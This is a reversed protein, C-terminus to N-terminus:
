STFAKSYVIDAGAGHGYLDVPASPLYGNQFLFARIGTNREKADVWIRRARFDKCGEIEANRLLFSAIHRGRMDPRVTINKIELTEEAALHKQFLVAGVVDGRHLAVLARKTELKLQRHVKELWEDIDPYDPRPIWLRPGRLYSVVEDARQASGDSTFRFDMGM